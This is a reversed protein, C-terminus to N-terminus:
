LRKHNRTALVNYNLDLVSCIAIFAGKLPTGYYLFVLSYFGFKMLVYQMFYNTLVASSERPVSIIAVFQSMDCSGNMLAMHGNSDTHHDPIQLDVHLITFHSNVLWSFM